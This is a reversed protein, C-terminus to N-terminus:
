ELDVKRIELVKCLRILTELTINKKGEEIKSIDPQKMGVRFALERQSLKKDLRARAITKGVKLFLRSPRGAANKQKSTYEELIQEYVTQWWDRFDSERAIKMWYAKVQPWVEIFEKKSILSFLEGPQQCRSLFTVLRGPFKPHAPNNLIRETEKLAQENLDWFYKSIRM